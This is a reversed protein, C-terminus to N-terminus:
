KMGNANRWDENSGFPYLTGDIVAEMGVSSLRRGMISDVSLDYVGTYTSNVSPSLFTQFYSRQTPQWEPLRSEIQIYYDGQGLVLGDFLVNWRGEFDAVITREGGYILDGGGGFIRITLIENPSSFGGFMAVRVPILGSTQGEEEERDFLFGGPEAMMFGQLISSGGSIFVGNVSAGEAGRIEITITETVVGGNGDSVTYTFVETRVDTARLERVQALDNDPTYVYTGDASIQLTGYFGDVKTVGSESVAGGGNAAGEFATGSFTVNVVKLVDDPANGDQDVDSDNGLANGFAVDAGGVGAEYVTGRDPALVPLDNTGTITITVTETDSGTVPDAARITYTLTLVEGRALFDFTETGSDFKWNITGETAGGSIIPNSSTLTLMSLFEATTLNFASGSVVVTPDISASVNGLDYVTLTGEVILPANTETLAESDSDGALVVISPPLNEKEIGTFSIEKQSGGFTYTGSGITAQTTPTFVPDIADFLNLVDGDSTSSLGPDGGAVNIEITESPTITFVDEDSGGSILVAAGATTVTGAFTVVGGEIDGAGVQDVTIAIQENAAALTGNLDFVFADDANLTIGGNLSTVSVSDGIIVDGSSATATLDGRVVSTKFDFDQNNTLSADSNPGTTTVGIAGTVELSDLTIDAGDTTTALNADGGVTTAESDTIAGSSTITLNGGIDLGTATADAGGINLAGTNTVVFDNLSSGELNSVQIELAGNTGTGVSGNPANLVLRTAVIETDADGGDLIDGNTSNLIVTGVTELGGITIDGNATIDINGAGTKLTSGDAMEFESGATVTVKGAGGSLDIDTNSDITVTDATLILDGNLALPGGTTVLTITDNAEVGTTTTDPGTTDIRLGATVAAGSIIVTRADPRSVQAPTLGLTTLVLVGNAERITYTDAVADYTVTLTDVSDNGIDTIVLEGGATLEVQTEPAGVFLVVDNGDGGTYSIVYTNTGDTVTAGEPLGSFTSTVLDTDDNSIITIVSGPVLNAASNISLSASDM